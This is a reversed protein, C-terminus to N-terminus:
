LAAAPPTKAAPASVAPSAAAAGTSAPTELLEVEVSFAEARRLSVCQNQFFVAIPDGLPASASFELVAGPM